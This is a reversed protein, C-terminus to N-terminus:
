DLAAAHRQLTKTAAQYEASSLPGEFLADLDEAMFDEDCGPFRVLLPDVPRMLEVLGVSGIRDHLVYWGPQADPCLETPPRESVLPAPHQM